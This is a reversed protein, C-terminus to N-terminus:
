LNNFDIIKEEYQPLKRKNPKLKSFSNKKHTDYSNTLSVGVIETTYHCMEDLRGRADQVRNAGIRFCLVTFPVCHFTLTLCEVLPENKVKTYNLQVTRISSPLSFFELTVESRLEYKFM